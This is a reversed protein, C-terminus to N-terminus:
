NHDVRKPSSDRPGSSSDDFSGDTACQVNLPVEDLTGKAIDTNGSTECDPYLQRVVPALPIVPRTPLVRDALMMLIGFGVRKTQRM